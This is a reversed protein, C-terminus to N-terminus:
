NHASTSRLVSISIPFLRDFFCLQKWENSEIHQTPTCFFFVNEVQRTSFFSIFKERIEAERKIMKKSRVFAFTWDAYCKALAFRAFHIDTWRMLQRQRLHKPMHRRTEQGDYKSDIKWANLICHDRSIQHDVHSHAQGCRFNLKNWAMRWRVFLACKFNSIKWERERKKPQNKEASPKTTWADIYASSLRTANPNSIFFSFNVFLFM